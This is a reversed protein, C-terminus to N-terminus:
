AYFASYRFCWIEKWTVANTMHAWPWEWISTIGPEEKRFWDVFNIMYFLFDDMFTAHFIYLKIQFHKVHENLFAFHHLNSLNIIWKYMRMGFLVFHTFFPLFYSIPVKQSKETLDWRDWNDWGEFILQALPISCCFILCNIKWFRQLNM